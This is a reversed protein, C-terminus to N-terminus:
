VASQQLRRGARQLRSAPQRCQRRLPRLQATRWVCERSCCDRGTARGDSHSTWKDAHGARISYNDIRANSPRATAGVDVSLRSFGDARCDTDDQWRNPDTRVLQGTVEGFPPTMQDPTPTVRRHTPPLNWALETRRGRLKATDSRIKRTGDARQGGHLPTLHAFGSGQRTRCVLIVSSGLAVLRLAPKIELRM